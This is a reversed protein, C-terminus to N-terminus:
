QLNESNYEFNTSFINQTISIAHRSFASYYKLSYMEALEPEKSSEIFSMHFTKTIKRM